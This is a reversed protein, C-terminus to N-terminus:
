DPSRAPKSSAAPVSGAPLTGAHDQGPGDRAVLLASYGLVTWIAIIWWAMLAPFESVRHVSTELWLRLTSPGGRSELYAGVVVGLGIGLAGWAWFDSGIGTAKRIGSLMLWGAASVGLALPLVYLHVDIADYIPALRNPVTALQPSVLDFGGNTGIVKLLLPWAFLALLGVTALALTVARRQVGTTAGRHVWVWRVAVLVLIAAATVSGEIKTEGAVALLVAAAGLTWRNLPLLLGFVVAGVASVSWLPDAYGNTGFPEIVGYATFILLITVLLSALWSSNGCLWRDRASVLTPVRTSSRRTALFGVEIVAWVSAFLAFANVIGVVIQASRASHSGGIWWTLAVTSSILPPYGGHAFPGVNHLNTSAQSHSDLM